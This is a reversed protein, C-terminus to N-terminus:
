TNVSGPGLRLGNATSRTRDVESFRNLLKSSKEETRVGIEVTNGDAKVDTPIPLFSIM